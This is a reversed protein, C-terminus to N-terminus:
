QLAKHYAASADIIRAAFNALSEEKRVDTLRSDAERCKTLIENM